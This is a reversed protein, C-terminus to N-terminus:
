DRGTVYSHMGRFAHETGLGLLHQQAFDDPAHGKRANANSTSNGSQGKQFPKGRPKGKAKAMQQEPARYHWSTTLRSRSSAATGSKIL